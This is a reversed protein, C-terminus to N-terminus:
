FRPASASRFSEDRMRLLAGCMRRDHRSDSTATSTSDSPETAVAEAAVLVQPDSGPALVVVMRQAPELMQLPVETVTLSFRSRALLPQVKSTPLRVRLM